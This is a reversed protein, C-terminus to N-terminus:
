KWRKHFRTKKRSKRRKYRMRRYGKGDGSKRNFFLSDFDKNFGENLDMRPMRFSFAKSGFGDVGLNNVNVRKFPDSPLSHYSKSLRNMRNRLSRRKNDGDGGLSVMTKFRQLRDERRESRINRMQEENLSIDQRLKERRGPNTEREYANRLQKNEINLRDLDRTDGFREEKMRLTKDARVESREGRLDARKRLELHEEPRTHVTRKVGRHYYKINYEAAAAEEPSLEDPKSIGYKREYGM